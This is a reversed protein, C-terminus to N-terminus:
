TPLFPNFIIINWSYLIIKVLIQWVFLCFLACLERAHRFRSVNPQSTAVKEMCSNYKGRGSYTRLELCSKVHDWVHNPLTLSQQVDPRMTPYEQLQITDLSVNDSNWSERSCRVNRKYHVYTTYVPIHRTYNPNSRTNVSNMNWYFFIM